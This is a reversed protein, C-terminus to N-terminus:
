NLFAVTDFERFESRQSRLDTAAKRRKANWEKGPLGQPCNGGPPFSQSVVPKIM